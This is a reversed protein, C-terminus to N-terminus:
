LSLRKEYLLQICNNLVDIVEIWRVCAYNLGKLCKLPRSSIEFCPSCPLNSSVIRYPVNWPHIYNVNTPGLIMVEPIGLSSALHGLSSDNCIFLSCNKILAAVKEITKDRVLIINDAKNQFFEVMDLEDPGLFLLVTGQTRENLKCALEMYKEKPWRRCIHNKIPSSGPHIGLFPSNKGKLFEKAWDKYSEGLTGINIEPQVYSVGLAHALKMNEEVNHMNYTQNIRYTLLFRLYALSSGKLYEHGIRYKAGILWSLINYHARNAPFVIVSLDFEEKRLRWIQFISDLIQSRLFNHAIVKDFIGLRQLVTASSQWMTLACLFANKYKQRLARCLGTGLITDGLGGLSIVLIRGFDENKLNNSKRRVDITFYSLM